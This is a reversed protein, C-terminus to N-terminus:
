GLNCLVYVVAKSQQSSDKDTALPYSNSNSHRIYIATLHTQNTVKALSNHYNQFLIVDFQEAM